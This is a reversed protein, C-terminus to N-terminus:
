FSEVYFMASTASFALLAVVRINLFVLARLSYRGRWDGGESGGRYLDGWAAFGKGECEWGLCAVGRHGWGSRTCRGQLAFGYRCCLRQGSRGWGVVVSLDVAPMADRDELMYIRPQYRSPFVLVAILAEDIFM